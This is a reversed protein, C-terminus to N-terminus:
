LKCRHIDKFYVTVIYLDETDFVSVCGNFVQRIKGRRRDKGYYIIDGPKLEAIFRERNGFRYLGYLLLSLLCIAITLYATNLEM